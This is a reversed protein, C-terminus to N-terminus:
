EKQYNNTYNKKCLPKIILKYQSDKYPATKYGYKYLGCKCKYPLLNSGDGLLETDCESCWRVSRKVTKYKINKPFLM